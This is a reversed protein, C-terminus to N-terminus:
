IGDPLGGVVRDLEIAVVVNRAAVLLARIGLGLGGRKVVRLNGALRVDSGLPAVFGRLVVVALTARGGCGPHRLSGRNCAKAKEANQKDSM